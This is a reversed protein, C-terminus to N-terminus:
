ARPRAGRRLRHGPARRRRPPRRGAGRLALKADGVCASPGTTVVSRRPDVDVHVIRGPPDPLTWSATAVNGTKTGVLLVTDAARMVDNAIRGRGVDGGTYASMWARASRTPRTSRARASRRRPWRRASFTPCRACSTVPAPSSCAGAPSSPPGAPRPSSSGGGGPDGGPRARGPPEPLPPRGCARSRAGPRGAPSCTTRSLEGADPGAARQHGARLRAGHARGGPRAPRPAGGVEDGAPVAGPPRGGPDPEARGARHQRRQRDGGGADVVGM